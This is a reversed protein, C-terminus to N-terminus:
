GMWATNEGAVALTQVDHILKLKLRKPEHLSVACYRLADAAHSADDHLPERSMQGSLQDIKYRYRRLAAIGDSCNEADFFMTPFVTRVANIGDEVSLMPVIKVDYGSAKAMEEISLGTGLQKAKADHPLWLTGVVYQQSQIYQLYHHLSQHRNQYFRIVRMEFGIRQVFWMATSDSWGLDFFVEVPKSASYPVTTIREALMADRIERAYIAGDISQKCHGEWVNLYADEDREQLDKREQELVEPFWPNDNWNMKVVIANKPPKAVFRRFTEDTEFEPNFTMWIESGDIRITPILTDWSLKSVTQAEEVWVRTIGEMSKIKNVNHRLGAFIFETGNKGVISTQQVEYFSSLGLLEIQQSLLAHVSELISSQFERACLIRHQKQMGQILLARACGWSRGSGRGGYLVKYRSPQFLFGMKESFRAQVPKM